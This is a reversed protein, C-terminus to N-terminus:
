QFGINRKILGSLIEVARKEDGQIWTYTRPRMGKTKMVFVYAGGLKYSSFRQGGRTYLVESSPDRQLSKAVDQLTTYQKMHAQSSIIM